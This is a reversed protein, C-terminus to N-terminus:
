SLIDSSILNQFILVYYLGLLRFFTKSLWMYLHATCLACVSGVLHIFLSCFKLLNCLFQTKAVRVCKRIGKDKWVQSAFWQYKLIMKDVLMWLKFYRAILDVICRTNFTYPNSFWLKHCLSLEESILSIYVSLISLKVLCNPARINEPLSWKGRGGHWFKSIAWCVSTSSVVLQGLSWKM